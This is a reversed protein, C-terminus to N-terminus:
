PKFPKGARAQYAGAQSRVLAILNGQTLNVDIGHMGWDPVLQGNLVMDGGIRDTRPDAQDANVTVALFQRDGERVCRGSVLGPAAVFLTDVKALDKTWRTGPPLEWSPLYADLRDGDGMLTAPNVCAVTPNLPGVRAFLSKASPPAADARFASYAVFCGLDTASECPGVSKFADDPGATPPGLLLASVLQSSPTKGDIEQRILQAWLGAGQSHGILVFGRGNNYHKMYYRWADGVDAYARKFDVPTTPKGIVGALTVSRYVPAFTRCVGRFPGLHFTAAGTEGQGPTMDSNGTHDESSTPYLYLCDIAADPNSTLAKRTVTGDAAVITVALDPKSCADQRGPLCIWAAPDAYDNDTAAAPSAAAAVGFLGFAALGIGAGLAQQLRFAIKGFPGRRTLKM